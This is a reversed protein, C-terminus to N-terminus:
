GECIGSNNNINHGFIITEFCRNSDEDNKGRFRERSILMTTCVELRWLQNASVPPYFVELGAQVVCCSETEFVVVVLGFCFVEEQRFRKSFAWLKSHCVHEM